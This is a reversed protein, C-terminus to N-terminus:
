MSSVDINGEFGFTGSATQLCSLPCCISTQCKGFTGERGHKAGEQRLMTDKKVCVMLELIGYMPFKSNHVEM